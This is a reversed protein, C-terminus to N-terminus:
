APYAAPPPPMAPATRAASAASMPVRYAAAQLQRRRWRQLPCPLGTPINTGDAVDTISIHAHGKTVTLPTVPAGPRGSEKLEFDRQLENEFIALEWMTEPYRGGLPQMYEQWQKSDLHYLEVLKEARHISSLPYRGREEREIVVVKLRNIM